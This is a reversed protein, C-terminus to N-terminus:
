MLYKYISFYLSFYNLISIMYKFVKSKVANKKSTSPKAKEEELYKLYETKLSKSSISAPAATQPYSYDAGMTNANCEHCEVSVVNPKNGSLYWIGFLFLM